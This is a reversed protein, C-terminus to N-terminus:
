LVLLFIHDEYAPLVSHTLHHRYAPFRCLMKLFTLKEIIPYRKRLMLSKVRNHRTASSRTKRRVASSQPVAWHEAESEGGGAASLKAYGSGAEAPGPKM